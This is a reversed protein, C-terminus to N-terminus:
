NSDLNIYKELYQSSDNSKWYPEISLSQEATDAMKSKWEVCFFVSMIQIESEPLVFVSFKGFHGHM